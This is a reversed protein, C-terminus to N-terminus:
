NSRISGINRLATERMKNYLTNVSNMNIALVSSENVKTIFTEPNQNLISQVKKM